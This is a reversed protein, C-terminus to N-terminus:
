WHAMDSPVQGQPGIPRVTHLNPKPLKHGRNKVLDYLTLEYKPVSKELVKQISKNVKSDMKRINTMGIHGRERAQIVDLMCSLKAENNLDNDSNPKSPM